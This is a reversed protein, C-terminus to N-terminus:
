KKGADYGCVGGRNTTKVSQSDIIAASPATEKGASLRVSDRLANHIREFPGFSTWKRYYDYATSWPGFDKPMM